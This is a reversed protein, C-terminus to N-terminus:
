KKNKLKINLDDITLDNKEKGLIDKLSDWIFIILSSKLNDLKTDNIKTESNLIILKFGQKEFIEKIKSIYPILDDEIEVIYSFHGAQSKTIIGDKITSILNKFLDEFSYIKEYKATMYAHYASVSTDITFKEKINDIFNGM